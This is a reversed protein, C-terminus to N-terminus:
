MADAPGIDRRGTKRGLPEREPTGGEIGGQLVRREEGLRLLRLEGDIRHRSALHFLDDGLDGCHVRRENRRHDTGAAVLLAANVDGCVGVEDQPTDCARCAVTEFSPLLCWVRRWGELRM